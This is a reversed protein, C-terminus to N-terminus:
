IRNIWHNDILFLDNVDIQKDDPLIQAARIKRDQQLFLLFCTKRYISIIMITFMKKRERTEENM